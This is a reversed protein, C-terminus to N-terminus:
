CFVRWLVGICDFTPDAKLIKGWLDLFQLPEEFLDLAFCGVFVFFRLLVPEKGVNWAVDCLPAM